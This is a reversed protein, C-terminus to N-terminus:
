KIKSGVWEGQILAKDPPVTDSQRTSVYEDGGHESM